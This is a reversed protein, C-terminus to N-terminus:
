IAPPARASRGAGRRGRGLRHLPVSAPGRPGTRRFARGDEVDREASYVQGKEGDENVGDRELYRLHADVAKGGGPRQRDANRKRGQPNLKVVRAKVAVRRSRFRGSSDQQWGGNRGESSVFPRAQCWSRAMSGVAETGKRGGGPDPGRGIRNPDGGAKRVAVQVQKLFPQSRLNGRPNIGTGRNWRTWAACSIRRRSGEGHPQRDEDIQPERLLRRRDDCLIAASAYAISLFASVNSDFVALAM